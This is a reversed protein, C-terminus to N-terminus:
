KTRVVFRTSINEGQANTVPQDPSDSKSPDFEFTGKEGTDEHITVKLGWGDQVSEVLPITVDSHAGASLTNPTYGFVKNAQGTGRLVLWRDGDLLARDITVPGNQADSVEQNSVSVSEAAGQISGGTAEFVAGLSIADKFGDCDTDLDAKSTLSTKVTCVTKVFSCLSNKSCQDGKEEVGEKCSLECEGPSKNKCLDPDSPSTNSPLQLTTEPYDLCSCQRYLDNIIGIVDKVLVYGGIRGKKLSIGQNGAVDSNETDVNAKLKAGRVPVGVKFVGLQLQLTLNGAETTLKGNDITAEDFRAKPFAGQDFSEQEVLYPTGNSDVSTQASDAFSALTSNIAFSDQQPPLSTVGQHELALILDGAEINQEIREDVKVGATEFLGLLEAMNNDVDDDGQNLNFTDNKAKDSLLELKSVVSAPGWDSFESLKDNCRSPKSGSSGECSQANSARFKSTLCAPGSGSMDGGDSGADAMPGGGDEDGGSTGDGEDGTSDDADSGGNDGNDGGNDEGSTDQVGADQGGGPGGGQNTNDGGGCGLPVLAM